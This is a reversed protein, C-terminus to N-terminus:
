KARVVGILVLAALWTQFTYAITFGFLFNVAWIVAWPWFIVGLVVFIILWTTGFNKM